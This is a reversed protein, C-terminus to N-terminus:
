AKIGTVIIEFIISITPKKNMASLTVTGSGQATMRIGCESVEAYQSDTASVPLGIIGNTKETIGSVTTTCTYPASSGTWSNSEVTFTISKTRNQELTTGDNYKIIDAKSSPYITDYDTGNFRKLNIKYESAM